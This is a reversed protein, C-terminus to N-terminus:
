EKFITVGALGFMWGNPFRQVINTVSVDDIIGSTGILKFLHDENYIRFPDHYPYYIEPHYETTLILKGGPKLVRMMEVIGGIDNKVHEITSICLVVNFYNDDFPLATIDAQKISINNGNDVVLKKWEELEIIKQRSTKVWDYNDTLITENVLTSVYVPFLTFLSGTDLVVQSSNFDGHECAYGYEWQRLYIKYDLVGCKTLFEKYNQEYYSGNYKKTTTYSVPM